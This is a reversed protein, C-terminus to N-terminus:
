VLPTVEDDDDYEKKEAALVDNVSKNLFLFGAPERGQGGYIQKSWLKNLRGMFSNVWVGKLAEIVFLSLNDWDETATYDDIMNTVSILGFPNSESGGNFQGLWRTAPNPEDRTSTGSNKRVLKALHIAAPDNAAAAVAKDLEAQTKLRNIYEPVSDTIDKFSLTAYSNAYGTTGNGSGVYYEISWKNLIDNFIDGHIIVHTVRRFTDVQKIKAALRDLEFEQSETLGPNYEDRIRVLSDRDVIDNNWGTTQQIGLRGEHDATFLMGLNFNTKNVAIDHSSNPGEGFEYLRTKIADLVIPLGFGNCDEVAGHDNYIGFFPIPCVDFMANGYCLSKHEKNELLMFVAVEQNNTVHLQSVACVGNFCGM